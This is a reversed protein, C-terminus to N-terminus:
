DGSAQFAKEPFFGLTKKLRCIEILLDDSRIPKTVFGDMGAALCTERDGSMANATLAIIPIHTGAAREGQRIAAAAELGDMEPMQIDMLILDFRQREWQSLADKGNVAVVISHGQKELMHAALKQNILNDEALLIHLASQGDGASVPRISKPVSPTEGGLGLALEIKARLEPYFVPKSLATLNLQRSKKKHQSNSPGTLMVIRLAVNYQLVKMRSALSFGDVGPMQVDILVLKFLASKALEDLAEHADAAVVPEVGLQTLMKSLIRRSSANDDVVLAQSRAPIETRVPGSSSAVSLTPTELAFHFCSGKHPQSEVWIRGGIMEALRLSITLGLGTGGFERTTSTDVQSFADFIAAHRQEPIGIGTDRVLFHLSARGDNFGDLGVRLEVEGENTFKIANGILNVLIQGLRVADVVIEDPVAPDIDCLFELDKQDARLALPKLIGPLAERLRFPVAHLEVKGAEIKSFDLVDDVIALLIDASTKACELLDRQEASLDTQLALETMGLVGNMPTRIEHSMNAVFASKARNAAEAEEKLRSAEQLQRHIVASQERIRRQLLMSRFLVGLTLALVGALILLTHDATWWSPERVVVIDQPSRLLIRFSSPVSFGAGSVTLDHDALVSCIGTIRLSSGLPLNPLGNWEKAPLITPFVFKGVSLLLTPDTAAQDKGILKGELQVLQADRDGRFAEEVSILPPQQPQWEGVRRFDSDTLTPRFDGALPFGLLDVMQGSRVPSTQTTQACLGQANSEICLMRGPWFMTVRGRLHVRHRFAVNPDFRLLNSVSQVPSSFPDPSAAEEVHITEIGPFFIHTGTMQRMRNFVPGDNGHLRVTADVLSDYNVGPHRTTLASVNGESTAVDLITNWKTNHVSRVVGEIEVWQGDEAGTLLHSLSVLPAAEPVVSQGVFGLHGHDVIPAFDGSGSVGEVDVLDGAHVAFDPMQSLAVFVSGTQDHVFLAPRRLDINPDFYTAVARLHVPYARASEAFTLSHVARATKLVPLGDSHKQAAGGASSLLVVICFNFGRRLSQHLRSNASILM